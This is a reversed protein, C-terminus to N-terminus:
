ITLKHFSINEQVRLFQPFIRLARSGQGETNPASLFICQSKKEFTEIHKDKSLFPKSYFRPNKEEIIFLLTLFTLMSIQSHFYQQLNKKYKDKYSLKKKSGGGMWKVSM